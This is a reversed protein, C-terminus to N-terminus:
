DDKRVTFSVLDWARRKGEQEKLPFPSFSPIKTGNQWGDLEVRSSGRERWHPFGEQGHFRSMPFVLEHWLTTMQMTSSAMVLLVNSHPLPFRFIECSWLHLRPFQPDRLAEQIAWTSLKGSDWREKLFFPVIIGKKFAKYLSWLFGTNTSKFFVFCQSVNKEM